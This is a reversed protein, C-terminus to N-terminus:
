EDLAYHKLYKCHSLDSCFMRSDGTHHVGSSTAATPAGGARGAAAPDLQRALSRVKGLYAKRVGRQRGRMIM